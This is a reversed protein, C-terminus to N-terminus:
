SMDPHITYALRFTLLLEATALDMRLLEEYSWPGNSVGVPCFGSSLVSLMEIM